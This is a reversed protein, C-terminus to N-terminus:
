EAGIMVVLLATSQKLLNGFQILVIQGGTFAFNESIMMMFNRGQQAVIHQVNDFETDAVPVLAHDKKLMKQGAALLESIYRDINRAFSKALQIGAILIVAGFYKVGRGQKLHVILCGQILKRLRFAAM